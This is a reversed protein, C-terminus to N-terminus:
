SVDHVDAEPHSPGVEGQPLQFPVPPRVIRLPSLDRVTLSAIRGRPTAAWALSVEAPFTSGDGRLAELRVRDPAGHLDITLLLEVPRGTVDGPERGFMRSAPRNLFLVRGDDGVGLVADASADLVALLDDARLRDSLDRMGDLLLRLRDDGATWSPTAGQRRTPM